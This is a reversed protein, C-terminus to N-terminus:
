GGISQMTRKNGRFSVQQKHSIALQLASKLAITDIQPLIHIPVLSSLCGYLNGFSDLRLRNCDSCFPSSDNAIIGFAKKNNISWYEATASNEKRMEEIVHKSRIVDLIKKKSFFLSNKSDFLPGMSMLELFRIVIGNDLAFQLLPLIETDNRGAVIVTNLKVQVGANLASYISKLVNGLGNFRSMEQFTVTSLADISINVSQLGAQQLGEIKNFLLHGNTTLGINSIGLDRVACIISEIRPHLLPEGGTFRVIELQLENHLMQIIKVLEKSNIPKSVKILGKAKSIGESHDLKNGDACYVCAYNCEHTLSIRLKKFKRGFSDTIM